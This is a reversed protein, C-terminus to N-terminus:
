LWKHLTYLSQTHFFGLHAWVKQVSYNNIQTSTLARTAGLMISLHIGEIILTKYLGNGSFDPSVASLVLEMESSSNKRMTLFGVVKCNCEALIVPAADSTRATSTRAWDVYAADAAARGLKPDSHYHGIYGHFGATAVQAVAEADEQGARRCSFGSPLSSKLPPKDLDRKYYLLTDMLRFGAAEFDRVRQLDTAPIRATLLQVGTRRAAADVENLSAHIDNVRAATVGFRATELANLEITM